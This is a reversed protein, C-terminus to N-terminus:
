RATEYSKIKLESFQEHEQEALRLVVLGEHSIVGLMVEGCRYITFDEFWGAESYSPGAFWGDVVHRRLVAASETTLRLTDTPRRGQETAVKTMNDRQPKGRYFSTLAKRLPEHSSPFDNFGLARFSFEDGGRQICWEILRWGQELSLDDRVFRQAIASMEGDEVM